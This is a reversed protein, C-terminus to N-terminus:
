AEGDFFDISARFLMDRNGPQAFIHDAAKIHVVDGGAPCAAAIEEPSGHPSAAFISTEPIILRAPCPLERAAELCREYPYGATENVLTESILFVRGYDLDYKGPSASKTLTKSAQWFRTVDLAPDWLCIKAPVDSGAILATFGGYSHGTVYVRRYRAAIHQLVAHYDNVHDQLSIESLRRAGPAIDYAGIRLHDYGRAAAYEGSLIELYCHRNHTLGHFHVIVPRKEEPANGAARTLNGYIIVGDDGASLRFEEVSCPTM